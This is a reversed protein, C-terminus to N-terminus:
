RWGDMVAAQKKRLHHYIKYNLSVDGLLCEILYIYSYCTSLAKSSVRHSVVGTVIRIRSAGDISCSVVGSDIPDRSNNM